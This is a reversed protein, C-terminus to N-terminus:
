LFVIVSLIVYIIIIAIGCLNFRRTWTAMNLYHKQYWFLVFLTKVDNKILDLAIDKDKQITDKISNLGFKEAFKFFDKKLDSRSKPMNGKYFRNSIWFKELDKEKFLKKIRVLYSPKEKKDNLKTKHSLLNYIINCGSISYYIFIAVSTLDKINIIILDYFFQLVTAFVIMITLNVELYMRRLQVYENVRNVAHNIANNVHEQINFLKVDISDDFNLNSYKLEDPDEEMSNM